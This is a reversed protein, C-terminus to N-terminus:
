SPDLRAILRVGVSSRGPVVSDVSPPEAFRWRLGSGGSEQLWSALTSGAGGAVGTTTFTLWDDARTVTEYLSLLEAARADTINEFQLDLASDYRRSGYRLVTTAGNQAQFSTQPFQGPTYQRRTPVIAPFAVATM